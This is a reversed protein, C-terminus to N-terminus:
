QQCCSRHAQKSKSETPRSDALEEAPPGQRVATGRNTMGFGYDQLDAGAYIPARCTCTVRLHNTQGSAPEPPIRSPDRSIQGSLGTPPSPPGAPTDASGECAAASVKTVVP